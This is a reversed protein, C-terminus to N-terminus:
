WKNGVLQYKCLVSGFFFNGMLCKKLLHSWIQMSGLIHHCKSILGKISFKMKQTTYGVAFERHQKPFLRFCSLLKNQISDACKNWYKLRTTASAYAHGKSVVLIFNKVFTNLLNLNRKVAKLLYMKYIQRPESYKDPWQYMM